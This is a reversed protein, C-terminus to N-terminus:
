KIPTGPASFGSWEFDQTQKVRTYSGKRSSLGTASSRDRQLSEVILVDGFSEPIAMIEGHKPGGHLKVSETM